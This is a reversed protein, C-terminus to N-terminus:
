LRNQPRFAPGPCPSFRSSAFRCRNGIQGATALPVRRGATQTVSVAICRGACRRPFSARRDARYATGSQSVDLGACQNLKPCHIGPIKGSTAFRRFFQLPTPRASDMEPNLVELALPNILRQMGLRLRSDASFEYVFSPIRRVVQGDYGVGGVGCGRGPDTLARHPAIGLEPSANQVVTKAQRYTEANGFGAKDAAVEYNKKGFLEGFNQSIDEGAAKPRGRREGLAKLEAEVALGIAVRESIKLPPRLGDRGPLLRWCWSPLFVTQIQKQVFCLDAGPGCWGRGAGGFGQRQGDVGVLGM